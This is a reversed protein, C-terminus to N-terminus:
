IKGMLVLCWNDTYNRICVNDGFIVLINSKKAAKVPSIAWVFLAFIALALIRVKLKEYYGGKKTNPPAYKGRRSFPRNSLKKRGKSEM